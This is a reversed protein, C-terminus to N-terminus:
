PKASEFGPWSYPQRLHQFLLFDMETPSLVTARNQFSRPTFTLTTKVPGDAFNYNPLDTMQNKLGKILSVKPCLPKIHYHAILLGPSPSLWTLRQKQICIDYGGGGLFSAFYGSVPSPPATFALLQLDRPWPPGQLLSRVTFPPKGTVSTCAHPRLVRLVNWTASWEWLNSQPRKPSPLLCVSTVLSPFSSYSRPNPPAARM